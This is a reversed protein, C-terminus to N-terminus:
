RPYIIGNVLLLKGVLDFYIKDAAIRDKNFIGM